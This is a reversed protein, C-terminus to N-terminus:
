VVLHPLMSRWAGFFTNFGDIFGSFFIEFLWLGVFFTPLLDEIYEWLCRKECGLRRLYLGWFGGNIMDHSWLHTRFTQVLAITRKWYCRTECGFRNLFYSLFTHALPQLSQMKKPVHWLNHALPHDLYRGEYVVCHRLGLGSLECERKPALERPFCNSLVTWYM